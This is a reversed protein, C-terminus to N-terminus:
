STPPHPPPPVCFLTCWQTCGSPSGHQPPPSFPGTPGVSAGRSPLRRFCVCACVCACAIIVPSPCPCRRVRVQHRLRGQVRCPGGTGGRLGHHSHPCGRGRLVSPRAQDCLGGAPCVDGQGQVPGRASAAAPPRFRTRRGRAPLQGRRTHQACPCVVRVAHYVGRVAVGCWAHWVVRLPLGTLPCLLQEDYVSAIHAHLGQVARVSPPLPPPPLAVGNCVRPVYPIFVAALRAEGGKGKAASLPLWRPRSGQRIVDELAVSTTGIVKDSLLTEKDLVTVALTPRVLGPEVPLELVQNWVARDKSDVSVWTDAVRAHPTVPGAGAGASTDASAATAATAPPASVISLRCYRGDCPWGDRVPSM